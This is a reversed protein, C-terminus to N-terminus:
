KLVRNIVESPMTPSSDEKLLGTDSRSFLSQIILKRDDDNITTDKSLALYFFTLTHREEADRALHYSSFMYKSLAKVIFAILTLLTIFVVTWRVITATNGGFAVNFIWDPAIVLIAALFLATVVVISVLLTKTENAQEYYTTAKKQWYKAPKELKLKAEYTEELRTLKATTETYWADWDQHKIKEFWDSFQLDKEETLSDIAKSYQTFEDNAGKIHNTLTEEAETLYNQFDAKLNQLGVRESKRRSLLDSSDKLTFEYALIAGYLLNKTNVTFDIGLLSNYAGIFYNPQERFVKLLFDVKPLHYPLPKRQTQGILSTISTWISRLDAGEQSLYTSVIHEIQEQINSFYEKSEIFGQPMPEDIAEWGKVQQAVFKYIASLGDLTLVFDVYNMDFTEQVSQCWDTHPSKAILNHLEKYTM